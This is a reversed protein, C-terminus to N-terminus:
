RNRTLWDALSYEGSKPWGWSVEKAKGMAKLVLVIAFRVSTAVLYIVLLTAFALFGILIIWLVWNLLFAIIAPWLVKQASERFKVDFFLPLFLVCLLYVVAIGFLIPLTDATRSFRAGVIALWCPAWIGFLWKEAKPWDKSIHDIEADIPEM